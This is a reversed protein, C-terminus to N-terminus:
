FEEVIVTTENVIIMTTHDQLYERIINDRDECDHQGSTDIDWAEAAENLTYVAFACRLAVPDLALSEGSDDEYASLYEVLARTEKYTDAGLVDHEVMIDFVQERSLEIHM